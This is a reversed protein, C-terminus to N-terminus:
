KRILAWTGVLFMGAVLWTSLPAGLYLPEAPQLRSGYGANVNFDFGAGAKQGYAIRSGIAQLIPQFQDIIAIANATKPGVTVVPQTPQMYYAPAADGLGAMGAPQQWAKARTVNQVKWGVSSGPVTTDLATWGRPTLVECYVHSFDQGRTAVTQFRTKHGISQLLAALLTSHDDCDGAGVQLTVVPTQLTEKYEGRFKINSKVWEFIARIEGNKDHSRVQSTIELAKQRIQPNAAGERGAVFAYMYRVTRAVGADGAKLPYRTCQIPRPM